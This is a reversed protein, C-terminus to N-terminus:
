LCERSRSAKTPISEKILGGNLNITENWWYHKRSRVEIEFLNINLWKFAPTLWKFGKNRSETFKFEREILEVIWWTIWALGTISPDLEWIWNIIEWARRM